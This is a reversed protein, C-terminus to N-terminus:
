GDLPLSDKNEFEKLKLFLKSANEYLSDKSPLIEVEVTSLDYRGRACGITYHGAYKIIFYDNQKELEKLKRVEETVLILRMELREM